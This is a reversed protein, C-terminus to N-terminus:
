LNIKFSITLALKKKKELYESEKLGLVLPTLNLYCSNAVLNLAIQLKDSILALTILLWLQLKKYGDFCVLATIYENFMIMYVNICVATMYTDVIHIYYLTHIYYAYM